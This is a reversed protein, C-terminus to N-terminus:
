SAGIGGSLLWNLLYAIPPLVYRVLMVDLISWRRLNREGLVVHAKFWAREEDDQAPSTSMNFLWIQGGARAILRQMDDLWQFKGKLTDIVRRREDFDNGAALFTQAVELAEATPFIMSFRQFEELEKWLSCEVWGGYGVVEYRRLKPHLFDSHDVLAVRPRKTGIRVYKM